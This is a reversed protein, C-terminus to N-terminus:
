KRGGPGGTIGGTTGPVLSSASRTTEFAIVIELLRVAYNFIVRASITRRRRREATTDRRLLASLFFARFDVIFKSTEGLLRPYIPM